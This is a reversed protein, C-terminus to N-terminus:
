GGLQRSNPTGATTASRARSAKPKTAVTPADDKADKRKVEINRKRKREKRKGQNGKRHFANIDLPAGGQETCTSRATSQQHVSATLQLTRRYSVIMMNTNQYTTFEDAPRFFYRYMAGSTNSILSTTKLLESLKDSKVREYDSTDIEWKTIHEMLNNDDFKLLLIRTLTTTM